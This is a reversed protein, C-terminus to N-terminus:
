IVEKTKIEILGTNVDQIIEYGRMSLDHLIEGLRWRSCMDNKAKKALENIYYNNYM